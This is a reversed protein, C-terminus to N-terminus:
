NLSIQESTDRACKHWNQLKQAKLGWRRCSGGLVDSMGREKSHVWPFHIGTVPNSSAHSYALTKANCERNKGFREAYAWGLMTELLLFFLALLDTNTCNIHKLM